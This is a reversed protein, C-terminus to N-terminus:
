PQHFLCQHVDPLFHGLFAPVPDEDASEDARTMERVVYLKYLAKKRAFDWRPSDSAIWDGNTGWSWYVRLYKPVGGTKEFRGVWFETRGTVSPMSVTRKEAPAALNFGAGSFCVEPAHVVVPGPRGSVLLVSLEEGTGRHIYRRRM